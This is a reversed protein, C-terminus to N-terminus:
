GTVQPQFYVRLTQGRELVIDDLLWRALLYEGDASIGSTNPTNRTEKAILGAERLTVPIESVNTFDQNYVIRALNNNVMEIQSTDTFTNPYVLPGAVIKNEIDTTNLSYDGFTVPVSSTGVALRMNESRTFTKCANIGNVSSFGSRIVGQVPDGALNKFIRTTAGLDNFFNYVWNSTLTKASSKPFKLTITIQLSEGINMYLQPFFDLCSWCQASAANSAFQGLGVANINHQQPWGSGDWYSHLGTVIPSSTVTVEIHDEKDEIQSVITNHQGDGWLAGKGMSWKPNNLVATSSCKGVCLGDQNDSNLKRALRFGNLFAYLFGKTFSRMPEVITRICKGSSDHKTLSVEGELDSKETGPSGITRLIEGNNDFIVAQTGFNFSHASM